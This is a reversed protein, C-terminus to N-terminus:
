RPAVAVPQGCRSCFRDELVLPNGCRSCFGAAQRRLQAVRAELDLDAPASSPMAAGAPEAARLEDIERLLAAGQSVRAARQDQYDQPEIKGMTFDMDLEHLLSLVQDQEARLASLRRERADPERSRGEVLPRAIYAATVAALALVILLPALEM